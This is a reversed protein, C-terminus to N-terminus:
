IRDDALDKIITALLQIMKDTDGTYIEGAALRRVDVICIIHLEGPLQVVFHPMNKTINEMDAQKRRVLWASFM